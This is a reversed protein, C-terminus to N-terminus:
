VSPSKLRRQNASLRQSPRPYLLYLCCTHQRLLHIHVHSPHAVPALQCYAPPAPSLRSSLIPRPDQSGAHRTHLSLRCFRTLFHDEAPSQCTSTELRARRCPPRPLARLPGLDQACWGCESDGDGMGWGMWGWGCDGEDVDVGARKRAWISRSMSNSDVPLFVLCPPVGLSTGAYALSM